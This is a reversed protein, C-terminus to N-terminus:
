VTPRGLSSFIAYIGENTLRYEDKNYYKALFERTAALVLDKKDIRNNAKVMALAHETENDFYITKGNTRVNNERPKRGPGRREETPANTTPESPSHEAIVPTSPYVEAAASSSNEAQPQEPLPRQSETPQEENCAEVRGEKAQETRPKESTMRNMRNISQGFDINAAKNGM